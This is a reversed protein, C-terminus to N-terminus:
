ATEGDEPISNMANALRTLYEGESLQPDKCLLTINVPPFKHVTAGDYNSVTMQPSFIQQSRNIVIRYCHLQPGTISGMSGWTTVSDLVPMGFSTFLDPNGSILDGNAQTAGLQVSYSYMRKEAYITQAQNPIGADIGGISVGSQSRDLGLDRLAEWSIPIAEERLPRSFVYIYEELQDWSNGNNNYGLPVPSTRQVSIDVPQMVENNMTMYSLDVMAYQAFSGALPAGAPAGYVFQQDGNLSFAITSPAGDGAIRGQSVGVPGFDIDILRTEKDVIRM